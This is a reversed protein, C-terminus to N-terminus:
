RNLERPSETGEIEIRRPKSAEMKPLVVTLVGHEHRAKVRNTDITRPLTFSREFRGYRREATRFGDKEDTGGAVKKEGAILLVNDQVRIEIDEPAIGPIELQCLVEDGSEVVDMAPVWSNQGNTHTEVEFARDLERQLAYLRELPSIWINRTPIM